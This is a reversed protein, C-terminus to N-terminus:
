VNEIFVFLRKKSIIADTIAQMQAPGLSHKKYTACTFKCRNKSKNKKKKFFNFFM